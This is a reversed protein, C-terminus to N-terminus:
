AFTECIVYAAFGKLQRGPIVCYWQAHAGCLRATSASRSLTSNVYERKPSANATRSLLKLKESMDAVQTELASIQSQMTQVHQPNITSSAKRLSSVDAEVTSIRNEVAGLDPQVVTTRGAPGPAGAYGRPGQPGVSGRTGARGSTGANGKDGKLGDYGRSGRVGKEGAISRGTAGRLGPEGKSGQM